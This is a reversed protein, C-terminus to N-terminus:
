QDIVEIQDIINKSKFKNNSAIKKITQYQFLKAPSPLSEQSQNQIIPFMPKINDKKNQVKGNIIEIEEAFINEM